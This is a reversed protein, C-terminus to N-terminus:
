RSERRVERPNADDRVGVFQSHRLLGDRTWEVFSVEVVLKPRVWQLNAMDEETIGESWHGTTQTPLNVFPCRTTQDTVM